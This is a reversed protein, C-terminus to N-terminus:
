KTMFKQTRNPGARSVDRFPHVSPTEHFNSVDESPCDVELCSNVKLEVKATISERAQRKPELRSIQSM